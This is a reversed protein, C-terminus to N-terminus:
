VKHFWYALCDIHVQRAEVNGDNETGKIPMLVVPKEDRTMCIPCHHNATKIDDTWNPRQFERVSM